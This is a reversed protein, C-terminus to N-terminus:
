LFWYIVRFYLISSIYTFQLYGASRLVTHSQLYVPEQHCVEAALLYLIYILEESECWKLLVHVNIPRRPIFLCNWTAHQKCKIINRYTFPCAMRNHNSRHYLRKFHYWIISEKREPSITYPHFYVYFFYIHAKTLPNNKYSLPFFMFIKQYIVYYM